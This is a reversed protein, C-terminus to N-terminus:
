VNQKLQYQPTLLIQNSWLFVYWFTFYIWHRTTADVWDISFTPWKTMKTLFKKREDNEMVFM